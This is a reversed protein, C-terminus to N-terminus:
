NVCVVAIDYKKEISSMLFKMLSPKVGSQADRYHDSHCELTRM